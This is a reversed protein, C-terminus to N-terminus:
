IIVKTEKITEGDLMYGVSVIDLIVNDKDNSDINSKHSRSASCINNLDSGGSSQMFFGDAERVSFLSPLLLTIGFMALLSEVSKYLEFMARRDYIFGNDKDTMFPLISYAYNRAVNDFANFNSNLEKVIITRLDSFTALPLSSNDFKYSCLRSIVSKVKETTKNVRAKCKEKNRPNTEILFPSELAMNIKDTLLRVRNVYDQSTNFIESGVDRLEKELNDKQLQLKSKDEELSSRIQSYKSDFRAFMDSLSCQESSIMEQPDLENYKEVIVEKVVTKEEEIATLSNRASDIDTLLREIIQLIDLKVLINDEIYSNGIKQKAVSTIKQRVIDPIEKLNSCGEYQSILILADEYVKHENSLTEIIADNDKALNTIKATELSKYLSIAKSIFSAAVSPSEGELKDHGDILDIIKAKAIAKNIQSTIENAKTKETAKIDKISRLAKSDSIVSTVVSNLNEIDDKDSLFGEAVFISSLNNIIRNFVDLVKEYDDSGKLLSSSIHQRLVDKVFNEESIRIAEQITALSIDKINSGFANNLLEQVKGRSMVASDNDRDYSCKQALYEYLQEKNEINNIRFNSNQINKNISDIVQRYDFDHMIIPVRGPKGSKDSCKQSIISIAQFLDNNACQEKLLSNLVKDGFLIEKVVYADCEKKYLKWFENVDINNLVELFSLTLKQNGENIVNRDIRRMLKTVFSDTNGSFRQLIENISFSAESIILDLHDPIENEDIECRYYNKIKDTVKTYSDALQIYRELYYCVNDYSINEKNKFIEHKLIQEYFSRCEVLQGLTNDIVDVSSDGKIGIKDHVTDSIKKYEGISLLSEELTNKGLLRLIEKSAVVENDIKLVNAIKNLYDDQTEPVEDTIVGSQVICERISDDNINEKIILYVDEANVCEKFPDLCKLIQLDDLSLIQKVRNIVAVKDSFDCNGLIEAKQLDLKANDYNNVISFFIEIPEKGTASFLKNLARKPFRKKWKKVLKICFITLFGLLVGILLLLLIMGISMEYSSREKGITWKNNKYTFEYYNTSSLLLNLGKITGTFRESYILGDNCKIYLSDQGNISDVKLLLSKVCFATDPMIFNSADKTRTITTDRLMVKDQSLILDFSEKSSTKEVLLISWTNNHWSVEYQKGRVINFNPHGTEVSTMNNKVNQQYLVNGNEVVKLPYATKNGYAVVLENINISDLESSVRYIGDPSKSASYKGIAVRGDELLDLKDANAYNAFLSLLLIILLHQKM